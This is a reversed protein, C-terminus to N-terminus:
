LLSKLQKKKKGVLVHLKWATTPLKRLLITEWNMPYMMMADRFAYWLRKVVVLPDKKSKPSRVLSSDSYENTKKEGLFLELLGKPLFYLFFHIFQYFLHESYSVDKIIFGHKELLKIVSKHTFEPHIHGFNRYTLNEWRHIKQFFWTYTFRQGECPVILFLRGNERLVRRIEKLFFDVNPVHELVDLCICLDFFNDKYPFRNNEIHDYKVKGSGLKKAYSIATSSVDCGFISMKTFYYPISETLLGGGCGIDLLRGKESAVIKMLSRLRYDQTFTRFYNKPKEERVGMFVEEYDFRKSRM